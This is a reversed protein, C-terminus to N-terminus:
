TLEASPIIAFFCGASWLGFWLAGDRPEHSGLEVLRYFTKRDIRADLGSRVHVYPSPEGTQPDRVVRVAHDANVTVVEDTRTILRLVQARGTGDAEFDVV